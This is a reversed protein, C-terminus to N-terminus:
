IGTEEVCSYNFRMPYEEERGEYIVTLAETIIQGDYECDEAYIYYRPEIDLEYYNGSLLYLVGITLLYSM